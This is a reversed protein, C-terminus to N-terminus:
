LVPRVTPSCVKTIESRFYVLTSLDFRESAALVSTLNQRKTLTAISGKHLRQVIDLHSQLSQIHSRRECAMMLNENGFTVFGQSM